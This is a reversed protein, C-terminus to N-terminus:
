LLQSRWKHVKEEIRRDEAARRKQRAEKLIEPLKDQPVALYPIMLLMDIGNPGGQQQHKKAVSRNHRDKAQRRLALLDEEPYFSDKWTTTIETKVVDSAFNRLVFSAYVTDFLVTPPWQTSSADTPLRLSTGPGIAMLSSNSLSETRELYHSTYQVATSPSAAAGSDIDTSEM